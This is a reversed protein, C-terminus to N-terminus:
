KVYSQTINERLICSICTFAQMATFAKAPNRLHLPPFNSSESNYLQKKMTETLKKNPSGWFWSFM